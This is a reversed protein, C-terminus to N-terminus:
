NRKKASIMSAAMLIIIITLLNLGPTRSTVSQGKQIIQIAQEDRSYIAPSITSEAFVSLKYTGIEGAFIEIPILKEEYANLRIDIEQNNNTFKTWYQIKEPTGYLKLKITDEVALSNKISIVVQQRSGLEVTFRPSSFSVNPFHPVLCMGAICEKDECDESDYCECGDGLMTIFSGGNVLERNGALDVAEVYFNNISYICDTTPYSCSRVVPTGPQTNTSNICYVVRDCNPTDCIRIRNIGSYTDNLVPVFLVDEGGIVDTPLYCDSCSIDPKVKDVKFEVPSSTDNNGAKDEVYGCVWAHKDITFTDGSTYGTAPCVGPDSFYIKYAYSSSKCCGESDTCAVTCTADTNQWTAPAGNISATPNGIDCTGSCPFSNPKCTASAIHCFYDQYTSGSCGDLSNCNTTDYSCTGAPEVCTGNYYRTNGICKDPCTVGDCPNKCCNWCYNKVINTTGVHGQSACEAAANAMSVCAVTDGAPVGYDCFGGVCGFAIDEPKNDLCDTPSCDDKIICTSGDLTMNLCSLGSWDYCEYIASERKGFKCKNNVPAQICPSDSPDNTSMIEVPCWYYCNKSAALKIYQSDAPCGATDTSVAPPSRCASNGTFNYRNCELALCKDGVKCEADGSCSTGDDTNNQVIDYKYCPYQKNCEHACCNIGCDDGIECSYDPCTRANAMSIFMISVFLSTFTIVLCLPVINYKM